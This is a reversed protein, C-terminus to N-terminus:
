IELISLDLFFSGLRTHRLTALVECQCLLHPSTEVEVGKKGCLLSDILGMVYLHRRLTNHGILIGTAVRSQM